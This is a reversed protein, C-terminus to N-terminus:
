KIKVLQREYGCSRLAFDLTINQPRRTRRKRWNRLTQTSIGTERAIQSDSKGSNLIVEVTLKMAPDYKGATGINRAKPAHFLNYGSVRSKRFRKMRM